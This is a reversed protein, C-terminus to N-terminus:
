DKLVENLVKRFEIYCKPCLVTRDTTYKGISKHVPKYHVELIEEYAGKLDIEKGCLKCKVM